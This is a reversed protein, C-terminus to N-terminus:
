RHHADRENPRAPPAVERPPPPGVSWIRLTGDKGTSAIRSGDPSFAVGIGDVSHKGLLLLELGTETDWIRVTGDAGTTVLRREDPSLATCNVAGRHGICLISEDLKQNWIRM